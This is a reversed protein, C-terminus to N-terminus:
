NGCIRAGSTCVIPVVVGPWCTTHAYSTRIDPRFIINDPVVPRVAKWFPDTKVKVAAISVRRWGHKAKLEQARSKVAAQSAALARGKTLGSNTAAIM